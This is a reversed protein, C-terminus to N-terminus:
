KAKKDMLQVAMRKFVEPDLWARRVADAAEVMEGWKQGGQDIFFWWFARYEEDLQGDVIMGSRFLNGDAGEHYIEICGDADNHRIRDIKWGDHNPTM